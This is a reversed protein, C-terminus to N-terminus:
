QLSLNSPHPEGSPSGSITRNKEMAPQTTFGAFSNAGNQLPSGKDEDVKNKFIKIVFLTWASDKGNIKQQVEKKLSAPNYRLFVGAL